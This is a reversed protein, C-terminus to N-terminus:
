SIFNDAVQVKVKIQYIFVFQRYLSMELLQVEMLTSTRLFIETWKLGARSRRIIINYYGDTMQSFTVEHTSM